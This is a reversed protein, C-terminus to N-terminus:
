YDLGFGVPFLPIYIVDERNLRVQTENAPWSFSLKGKCLFRPSQVKEAFLMEAIAGAESGPLWAAVFAGSAELEESVVMLRGSLFVAVSAVGRKRLGQLIKYPEDNLKRYVLHERGGEGEVYPLEAHGNWDGVVFGDFGM